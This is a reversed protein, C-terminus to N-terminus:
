GPLAASARGVGGLIRPLHQWPPSIGPSGRSRRVSGEPQSWSQRCTAPFGKPVASRGLKAWICFSSHQHRAGSSLTSVVGRLAAVRLANEIDCRDVAEYGSRYPRVRNHGLSRTIREVGQRSDAFAIFSGERSRELLEHLTQTAIDRVDGSAAIHLLRRPFSPSGDDEDGVVDCPIGTLAELHEGANAITASAGIFQLQSVPERARRALSRAAQLRRLLFAVHSGFVAELVHVEDLVILRLAALFRRVDPMGANRMLWAQCVDPTMAVIRATRIANAREDMPVPGTIEAVLDSDFGAAMVARRWSVLQDTALAKLPYFVLVRAEPDRDLIRLAAAQFVLSKGSATSTAM